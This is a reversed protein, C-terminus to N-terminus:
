NTVIQLTTMMVSQNQHVKLYPKPKPSAKPRQSQKLSRKRRKKPEEKPEEKFEALKKEYVALLQAKQKEPIASNKKIAEIKSTVEAKTM